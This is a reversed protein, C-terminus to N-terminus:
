TIADETVDTVIRGYGGFTSDQLNISDLLLNGTMEFGGWDDNILAMSAPDFQVRYLDIVMRENTVTNLGDFRIWREPPTTESFIALSTASTYTYDATFPQTFGTPDIIRIMGSAASEIVYDESAVLTAPTSNSDKIVVASVFQHDLSVYDGAVLGTPFEEGTVTAGTVATPSSHFALGLGEHSIEDLTATLVGSKATVLSGYLARAGSFSENKDSKEVTIELNAASVNGFWTFAGPKGTTTDRVAAFLKGQLSYLAM